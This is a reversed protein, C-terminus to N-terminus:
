APKVANTRELVDRITAIVAEPAMPKTLAADIALERPLQSVHTEEFGSMAIVRVGPFDRSVLRALEVGSRGPMQVDTLIVDVKGRRLHDLAAEADAAEIAEYGADELIRRLVKRIAVADDVILIRTQVPVTDPAAGAGAIIESADQSVPESSLPLLIRFTSGKDPATEVQIHGGSQKVIGYVTALGLGTGEGMPKTTFFPEFLHDRTEQDMGTGADCISLMVFHSSAAAGPLRRADDASLKMNATEIRLTGGLPMADRANLFLNLILQHMQGLDAKVRADSAGRVIVMEIDDGLFQTLMKAMGLIVQNLDLVKLEFGQRRSFALLQRTLLTAQECAVTIQTVDDALPSGPGLGQALMRTYGRIVTLCNNFDHAVGGALRGLSELKQAHALAHQTERLEATREIVATELGRKLRNLEFNARATQRESKRLDAMLREGTMVLFGFSIGSLGLALGVLATTNVWSPAFLDTQPPQLFFYIGRGAQLVGCGALLWGTYRMGIAQDAPINSLLVKATALLIGGVFLAVVLVRVNMNNVVYRYYILMAFMLAGGAQAQWVQPRLGRFQRAAELVLITVIAVMANAVVLTLWESLVSRLSLLLLTPALLAHGIAWRGLGPFTKRTRWIFLELLSLVATVLLSSVILTRNDLPM